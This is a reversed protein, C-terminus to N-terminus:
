HRNSRTALRTPSDRFSGPPIGTWKKFAKRFNSPDSFGLLQSIDEVALKTSELYDTALKLRIEDLVSRFTKQEATLRRRVTRTSINMEAAVSSLNRSDGPLMLIVRRIEDVKSGTDSMQELIAECKRECAKAMIPDAFVLRLDLM